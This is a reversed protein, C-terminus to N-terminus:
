SLNPRDQDGDAKFLVFNEPHNTFYYYETNELLPPTLYNPIIISDQPQRSLFGAKQFIDESIGVCYCDAYEIDQQQMLTHIAKGLQAFVEPKGIFDVIRLVSCSYEQVFITRTVLYGNSTTDDLINWVQYNQYPFSFYRKQLYWLDKQPYCGTSLVGIKELQEQNEVLSLELQGQPQPMTIGKANQVLQFQTKDSLRYFHSIRDATWGLFHYLPMTQPRINNCAVMRLGALQPLAEMLELGVGNKGKAACWISVWGDPVPSANSVIYGAVAQIQQQELALVFQLKEKNCYYFKFFDPNNVLPHKNGWNENLFDIIATKDQLIAHRFVFSPKM